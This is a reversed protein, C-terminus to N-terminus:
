SQQWWNNIEALHQITLKIIFGFLSIQSVNKLKIETKNDIHVTKGTLTTFQLIVFASVYRSMPQPKFITRSLLVYGISQLVIQMLFFHFLKRFWYIKGGKSFLHCSQLFEMSVVNCKNEDILNLIMIIPVYLLFRSFFFLKFSASMKICLGCMQHKTGVTHTKTILEYIM